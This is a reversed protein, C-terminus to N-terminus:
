VEEKPGSDETTDNEQYLNSGTLGYFDDILSRGQKNTDSATKWIFRKLLSDKKEEPVAIGEEQLGYYLEEAIQTEEDKTHGPRMDIGTEWANKMEQIQAKSKKVIKGSGVWRVGCNACACTYPGPDAAYIVPSGMMFYKQGEKGVKLRGTLNSGCRPCSGIEYCYM